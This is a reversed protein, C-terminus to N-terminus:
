EIINGDVDMIQVAGFGLSRVDAEIEDLDGVIVWRLADPKIITKASERVENLDVAQYREKLTTVYDDPRGYNENARLTGLVAGSTEYRGPLSNTKNQIVKELEASSAPNNSQYNRIEKQLELISEKTKDTQVPAYVIWPRQGRADWTITRAGYSWGKDERLNMNVRATFSGGLIDNMTETIINEPAGTPPIVHGALLVTQAAGPKDILYAVSQTPTTVPAINKTPLSTNPAAWSALHKNLLPVIEQMNTDGVVYITANDPRLWTSHFAILDERTLSNISAKTGSGTFPVGYSHDSGYM